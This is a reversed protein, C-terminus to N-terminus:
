PTRESGTWSRASLTMPTTPRRSRMRGAFVMASTIRGGVVAADSSGATLRKETKVSPVVCLTEIEVLVPAQKADDGLRIQEHGHRPGHSQRASTDGRQWIGIM